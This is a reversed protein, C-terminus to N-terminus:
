RGNPLYKEQLEIGYSHRNINKAAKCTSFSGAFPDLIYDGENSSKKILYELIDLPKETPHSLNNPAVRNFRLIDRDRNGNLDKWTENYGFLVIDYSRGYTKLDGMGIVERDWILINKLKFYKNFIPKIKEIENPNGFIYIHADDKLHKKSAEFVKDLVILTEEIKDNDIKDWKNDYDFGSKFDMGYPPDSLFLSIPEFVNKNLIDISNGIIYKAKYKEDYLIEKNFEKKKEIFNIEKEEKKIEKYAENISIQGTSVKAKIEPSATAEIKKVKSITDHSVNAVKGLEKRVIFEPEKLDASKQMGKGESLKMKEKAKEKYVNDLHLALVSRQYNNLNRRGFQNNIMWEKVANMDAFQKEVTVFDIDYETAIRYRNHGDILIGNWIVLPDRIGEELINRELQKFEESTLPPILIELEQLIQM